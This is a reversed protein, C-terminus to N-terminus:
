GAVSGHGFHVPSRLSDARQKQLLPCCSEKQYTPWNNPQLVFQASATTAPSAAAAYGPFDRGSMGGSAVHQLKCHKPFGPWDRFSKVVHCDLTQQNGSM